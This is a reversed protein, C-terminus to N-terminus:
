AVKCFTKVNRWTGVVKPIESGAREEGVERLSGVGKVGSNGDLQVGGGRGAHNFPHREKCM